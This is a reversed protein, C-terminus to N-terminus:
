KKKKGKKKKPQPKVQKGIYYNGFENTYKIYRAGCDPCKWEHTYGEELIKVMTGNCKFCDREKTDGTM